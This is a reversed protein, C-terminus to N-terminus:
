ETKKSLYYVAFAALIIMGAGMWGASVALLGGLIAAAIQLKQKANEAAQRLTDGVARRAREATERSVNWLRQLRQSTARRVEGITREAREVARRGAALAREWLPRRDDGLVDDGRVADAVAALAADCERTIAARGASREPLANLTAARLESVARVADAVAARAQEPTTPSTM